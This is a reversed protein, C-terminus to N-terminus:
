ANHQQTETSTNSSVPIFASTFPALLLKPVSWGSETRLWPLGITMSSHGGEPQRRYTGFMHDWWPFVIGYNSLGEDVRVSHHIRHMDPTVVLCHFLREVSVPLRANAHGYLNQLSLWTEYLLVALPDLGALAIVCLRVATTFLAELPHFRFGTTCDFDIDSHHIAHMRWLWPVKHMLIHAWYGAIDMLVLAVIVNLWTPIDLRQLIGWGQATVEAAWAIGILPFAIRLFFSNIILWLFNNFWRLNTSIHPALAQQQGEWVAVATFVALMLYFGPTLLAFTKLIDM